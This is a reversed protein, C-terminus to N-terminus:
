SRRQWRTFLCVYPAGDPIDERQVLMQDGEGGGEWEGPGLRIEEKPASRERQSVRASSLDKM